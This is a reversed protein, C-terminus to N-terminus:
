RKGPLDVGLCRHRFEREYSLKPGDLALQNWSYGDPIKLQGIQTVFARKAGYYPIRMADTYGIEWLARHSLHFLTYDRSSEYPRRTDKVSVGFKLSERYPPCTWTSVYCCANRWFQLVKSEIGPIEEETVPHGVHNTVNSLLFGIVYQTEFQFTGEYLPASTKGSEVHLSGTYPDVIIQTTTGAGWATFSMMSVALILSGARLTSRM